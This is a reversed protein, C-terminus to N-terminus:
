GLSSTRLRWWTEKDSMMHDCNRLRRILEQTLITDKNHEPIGSLNNILRPPKEPKDYHCYRIIGGEPGSEQMMWKMDLTPLWGSHFDAKEEITFELYSLSNMMKLVQEKTHKRRDM